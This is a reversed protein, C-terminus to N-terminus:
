ELDATLGYVLVATHADITDAATILDTIFEHEAL